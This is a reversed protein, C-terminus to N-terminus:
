FLLSGKDDWKTYLRCDPRLIIYRITETVKQSMCDSDVVTSIGGVSYRLAGFPLQELARGTSIIYKRLSEIVTCKTKHEKIWVDEPTNKGSTYLVRFTVQDVDLTKLRAFLDEQTCENYADTMNLSLRLNFGLEKINACAVDIFNPCRLKEPTDNYEYNILSNFVNSLSLSITSIKLQKLWFLMDKTLTVGSTQLDIWRFSKSLDRNWELVNELMAQNYVPEGDGTIVMTNCGNDRAFMMRDKFEQHHGHGEITNKYTSRHIHSVCFKCHNPCGGPICVSLSQVNMIKILPFWPDQVRPPIM